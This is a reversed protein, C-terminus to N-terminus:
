TPTPLPMRALRRYLTARGIGLLQAAANIDGGTQALAQTIALRELEALNLVPASREAPVGAGRAERPWDPLDGLAIEEGASSLMARHLTNELERVNGPWDYGILRNLADPAIRRVDRGVDARLRKLFHGVLRPIDDRRDRLPPLHVPYIVLRFYLDSRFRGARVEEDLNRNTACVIRATMEFERTGGVRRFRREQLVRLLKAQTSAPLEGVEDLFLTGGAAQEFCGRHSEHAGTFAGKEHGFLESEQLSEPIAACNIAVFPGDQRRSESHLAHAVLEKGTGSEGLICVPVDSSRVQELKRFVEQVAASRGVIATTHSEEELANVRRALQRRECARRVVHEVVDTDFPKVIYDYAGARMAQVATAVARDATAVIVPLDPARARVQALVEFGSMDELGLDLCVAVPAELDARLFAGGSEYLEVRYGAARLLGSLLARVEPDDDVAAVLEPAPNAM